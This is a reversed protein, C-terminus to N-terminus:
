RIRIKVEIEKSKELIEKEVKVREVVAEVAKQGRMKSAQQLLILPKSFAAM